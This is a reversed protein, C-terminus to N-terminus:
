ASQLAEASVRTSKHLAVALDAPRCFARGRLWSEVLALQAEALHIAALRYPLLLPRGDNEAHLRAEIAESLARALIVRPTGSFIADTLRRNDWFHDLVKALEAPQDKSSVCEALIGFFHAMSARLVDEKGSFHEYFTSRATGAAAVIAQVSVNEFGNRFILEVFASLLAGRTRESRSDLAPKLGAGKPCNPGFTRRPRM